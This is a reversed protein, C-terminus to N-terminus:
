PKEAHQDFFWKQMVIEIVLAFNYMDKNAHVESKRESMKVQSNIWRKRYTVLHTYMNHAWDIQEKKDTKMMSIVVKNNFYYFKKRYISQILAPFRINYPSKLKAVNWQKTSVYVDPCAINNLMKYARIKNVQKEEKLGNTLIKFM